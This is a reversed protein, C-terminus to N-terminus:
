ASRDLPRPPRRDPGPMESPRTLLPQLDAGDGGVGCGDDHEEAFACSVEGGGNRANGLKFFSSFTGNM